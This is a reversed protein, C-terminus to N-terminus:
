TCCRRELKLEADCVRKWVDPLKRVDGGVIGRGSEAKLFNELGHWRINIAADKAEVPYGRVDSRRAEGRGPGARGPGAEGGGWMKGSEVRGRVKGQRACGVKYKTGRSM